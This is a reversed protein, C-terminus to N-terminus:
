ILESVQPNRAKVLEMIKEKEVFSLFKGNKNIFRQREQVDPPYDQSGAKKLLRDQISVKPPQGSM